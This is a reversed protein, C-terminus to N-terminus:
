APLKTSTDLDVSACHVYMKREKIEALTVGRSIFVEEKSRYWSSIEDVTFEAM